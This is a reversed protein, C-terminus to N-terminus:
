KRPSHSTAAPPIHSFLLLLAHCVVFCIVSRPLLYIYLFSTQHQSSMCTSSFHSLDRPSLRYALVSLTHPRSTLSLTSASVASSKKSVLSERCPMVRVSLPASFSICETDLHNSISPQSRAVASHFNTQKISVFVIFSTVTVILSLLLVVNSECVCQKLHNSSESLPKESQKAYKISKHPIESM